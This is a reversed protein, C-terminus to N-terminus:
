DLFFINNFQASCLKKVEERVQIINASKQNLVVYLERQGSSKGVVWWESTTKAMIEGSEKVLKLDQHLDALFRVVECPVRRDVHISSKHALNLHNFYLYKCQVDGTTMNALKTYNKNIESALASLKDALFAELEKLFTTETAIATSLLICLTANYARFILLYCEEGGTLCVKPIRLPSTGDNISGCLFRSHKSSGTYGPLLESEVASQLINQKLYHHLVQVDDRELGSWVVQDNCLFVTYRIQRFTFQLMNIFCQVKLFAHRDLPLFQMGNLVDLLDVHQLGISAVHKDFFHKLQAKLQDVGGRSVLDSFTGVFLKFMRYASLLVARYVHDQVQESLHEVFLQGNRYKQQSPLGVTMIMWFDKEPQLFLQRTKQTHLVQCPESPQFTGTFSVLAECLGISRLKIDESTSEPHYYLLKKQEEDEKIGYTPNYIFFNKLTILSKAMM